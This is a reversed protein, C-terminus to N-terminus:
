WGVEPILLCACWLGWICWAFALNFVCSARLCFHFRVAGAAGDSTNANGYGSLLALGVDAQKLAGVDNGGDGCMLVHHEKNKQICRIVKAKGQPSCRAFVRITDLQNWVEAYKGDGIEGVTELVSNCQETWGIYDCPAVWVCWLHLYLTM